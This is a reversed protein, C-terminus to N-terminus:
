TYRACSRAEVRRNASLFIRQGSPDSLTLDASLSTSPADANHARLSSRLQYQPHVAYLRNRCGLMMRQRSLQTTCSLSSSPALIM